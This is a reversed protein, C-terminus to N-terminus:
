GDVYQFRVAMTRQQPNLHRREQERRRNQRERRRKEENEQYLRREDLVPDIHFFYKLVDMIIVFGLVTSIAGIAVGAFSRAVFEKM